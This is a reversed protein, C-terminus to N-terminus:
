TADRVIEQLNVEIVVDGINCVICAGTNLRFVLRIYNKQIFTMINVNVARTARQLVACFNGRYGYDFASYRNYM